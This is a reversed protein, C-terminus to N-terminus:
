LHTTNLIFIRKKVQVIKKNILRKKIGSENLKEDISTNMRNTEKNKEYLSNNIM